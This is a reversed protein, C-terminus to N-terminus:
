VMRIAERKAKLKLAIPIKPHSGVGSQYVGVAVLITQIDFRRDKFVIVHDVVVCHYAVMTRSRPTGGHVEVSV